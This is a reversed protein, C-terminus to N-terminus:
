VLDVVKLAVGKWGRDLILQGLRNSVLIERFASHGSGFWEYTQVIDLEPALAERSLYMVGRKHPLYKTTHCVPCIQGQLSEARVLGPSSITPVFLQSVEESRAGTKHIYADWVEYGRIGRRELERLVRPTCFLAYAWYLSLFDRADM